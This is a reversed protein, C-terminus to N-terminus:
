RVVEGLFGGEKAWRARDARGQPTVQGKLWSMLKLIGTLAPSAVSIGNLGGIGVGSPVNTVRDM